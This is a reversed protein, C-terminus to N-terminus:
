YRRKRTLNLITGDTFKTISNNVIQKKDILDIKVSDMFSLIIKLGAGIGNLLVEQGNITIQLNTNGRTNIYHYIQDEYQSSKIDPTKKIMKDIDLGNGHDIITADFTENNIHYRITITRQTKEQNCSLSIDKCLTEQVANTVAEDMALVIENLEDQPVNINKLDTILCDIVNSVSITDAPYSNIFNIDINNSMVNGM